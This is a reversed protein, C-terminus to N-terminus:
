NEGRHKKRAKRSGLAMSPCCGRTKWLCLISEGFFSETNIAERLANIEFKDQFRWVSVEQGEADAKEKLLKGLAAKGAKKYYDEDGWIIVAHPLDSTQRLSELFQDAAVNM